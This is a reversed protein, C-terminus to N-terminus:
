SSGPRADLCLLFGTKSRRLSYDQEHTVVWLNMTPIRPNLFHCNNKIQNFTIITLTQTLYPTCDRRRRRQRQTLTHAISGKKEKRSDKFLVYETRRITDEGETEGGSRFHFPFHFHFLASRLFGM